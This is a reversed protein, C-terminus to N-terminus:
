DYKDCRNKCGKCNVICCKFIDIFKNCNNPKIDLTCKFSKFNYNICNKCNKM